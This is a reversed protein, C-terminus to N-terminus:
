NTNISITFKHFMIKNKDSNNQKKKSYSIVKTCIKDVCYEDTTVECKYSEFLIFYKRTLLDLPITNM